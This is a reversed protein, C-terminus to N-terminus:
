LFELKQAHFAARHTVQQPYTTACAPLKQRRNKHAYTSKALKKEWKNLMYSSHLRQYKLVCLAVSLELQEISRWAIPLRYTHLSYPPAISISKSLRYIIM